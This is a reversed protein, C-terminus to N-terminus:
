SNMISMLKKLHSILNVIDHHSVHITEYGNYEEELEFSLIGGYQCNTNKVIVSHDEGKFEGRFCNPEDKVIRELENTLALVKAYRLKVKLPPTREDEYRHIFKVKKSSKTLKIDIFEEKGNGKNHVCALTYTEKKTKSM